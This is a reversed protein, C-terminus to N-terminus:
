MRRLVYTRRKKAAEPRNLPSYASPAQPLGAILSMEALTLERVDKRFYNEAASQVGYSHQGLYVNNLYIYLIEEKSLAAELRFAVIAEKIKRSLKKETAKAFASKQRQERVRTLEIKVAAARAMEARKALRERANTEMAARDEVSVKTRTKLVEKLEAEVEAKTPPKVPPVRREAEEAIDAGDIRQKMESSVLLAKATQQTLTSGGQVSGSGSAKKLITKFAARATGFVDVGAHDFFSSDESAIFAQVLRKPIHDYPVVKRRENYFEGALVGDQTHVESLIPPWYQDVRPIEPLGASYNYYLGLFVMTVATMGVLALFALVEFRRRWGSPRPPVAVLKLKHKSRDGSPQPSSPVRM